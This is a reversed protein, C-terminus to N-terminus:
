GLFERLPEPGVCIGQLTTLAIKLRATAMKTAWIAEGNNKVAVGAQLPLKRTQANRAVRMAPFVFHSFDCQSAFIPLNFLGAQILRIVFHVRILSQRYHSLNM